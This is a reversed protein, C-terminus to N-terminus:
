RDWLFQSAVNDAVSYQEARLAFRSAVKSLRQCRDGWNTQFAYKESVARYSKTLLAAHLVAACVTDGLKDDHVINVDNPLLPGLGALGIEAAIEFWEGDHEPAVYFTVGPSITASGLANKLEQQSQRKFYAVGNSVSFGGCGQALCRNKCALLDEASMRDFDDGEFVDKDKEVNWHGGHYPRTHVSVKNLPEVLPQVLIVIWNLENQMFFPCLEAPDEAYCVVIHNNGIHRNARNAYELLAEDSAKEPDPVGPMLTVAHYVAQYLAGEWTLFAEGDAGRTDLGGSYTFSSPWIGQPLSGSSSRPHRVDRYNGLGHLFRQYRLSGGSSALVELELRSLAEASQAKRRRECQNRSLRLVGVRYTEKLPARDINALYRVFDDDYRLRRPPASTRLLSFLFHPPLTPLASAPFGPASVVTEALSDELAALVSLDTAATAVHPIAPETPIRHFLNSGYPNRPSDERTPTNSVSVGALEGASEFVGYRALHETRLATGSSSRPSPPMPPPAEPTATARPPNYPGVPLIAAPVVEHSMRTLWTYAGGVTRCTSLMNRYPGQLVTLVFHGHPGQGAWASCHARTTGVMAANITWDCHPVPECAGGFCTCRWVLESMYRVLEYADYTGDKPSRALVTLVGDGPPPASSKQAQQAVLRRRSTPTIAGSQPAAQLLLADVAAENSQQAALMNQLSQVLGTSGLLRARETPSCRLLAEAIAAFALQHARHDSVAPDLM